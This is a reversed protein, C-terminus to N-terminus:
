GNQILKYIKKAIIENGKDGVHAEDIFITDKNDDFTDELSFVNSIEKTKKKLEFHFNKCFNIKDIQRSSIVTNEYDTLKKKTTILNPQIFFYINKNKNNSNFWKIDLCLDDLYKSLDFNSTKNVKSNKKILKSVFHKLKLNKLIASISIKLGEKIPKEVILNIKKQFIDLKVDQYLKGNFCNGMDNFGFIIIINKTEIANLYNFYLSFHQKLVHGGIGGNLCVESVNKEYFSSITSFNTPSYAGYVLSGGLFISDYKKLNFNNEARLGLYNTDLIINNDIKKKLKKLRFGIYPDAVWEENSAHSYIKHEFVDIKNNYADLFTDKNETVM